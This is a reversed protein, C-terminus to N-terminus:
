DMVKVCTLYYNFISAPLTAIHVFDVNYQRRVVEKEKGEGVHGVGEGGGGGVCGVLGFKFL